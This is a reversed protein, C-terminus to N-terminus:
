CRSAPLPPEGAARLIADVDARIARAVAPDGLRRVEELHWRRTLRLGPRLHAPRRKLTRSMFQELTADDDDSAYSRQKLWPWLSERVENTAYQRVHELDGSQWRRAYDAPDLAPSMYLRQAPTSNFFAIHPSAKVSWGLERAPAIMPTALGLAYLHKAQSKLEAPWLGGVLGGGVDALAFRQVSQVGHKELRVHGGSEVPTIGSIEGLL